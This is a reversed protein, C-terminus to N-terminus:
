PASPATSSEGGAIYGARTRVSLRGRGEAQAAVRIRRYAGKPTVNSSFYGITYQTRIDRAISECVAVVEDLQAPFYAEGGTEHALRKLVGPNRDPDGEESLGITYIIASSQEALKLVHALKHKSANDSGDSIVLLVKKERDGLPLQALSKVIADYLATMGDAPAKSIAGELEAASHTFPLDDRLGLSVNENFNVVFM